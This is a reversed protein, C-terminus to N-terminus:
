LSGWPIADSFATDLLAASMPVAPDFISLGYYRAASQGVGQTYGSFIVPNQPNEANFRFIERDARRRWSYIRDIPDMGSDLRFYGDFRDRGPLFPIVRQRQTSSLPLTPWEKDDPGLSFRDTRLDAPLMALTAEDDRSGRTWGNYGYVFVSDAPSEPLRIAQNTARRRPSNSELLAELRRIEAIGRQGPLHRFDRLLRALDAQEELEMRRESQGSKLVTREETTLHSLATAVESLSNMLGQWRSLDILSITASSREISFRQSGELQYSYSNLYDNALTVGLDRLENLSLPRDGGGAEALADLNEFATGSAFEAEESALIFHSLRRLEEVVEVSAMFCANFWLFDLPTNELGPARPPLTEALAGRLKPLSFNKLGRFGLGHGWILLLRNAEPNPFARAFFDRVESNRALWPGNQLWPLNGGERIKVELRGPVRVGAVPPSVFLPDWSSDGNSAPEVPFYSVDREAFSRLISIRFEPSPRLKALELINRDIEAQYSADEEAGLFIVAVDWAAQAREGNVAGGLLVLATLLLSIKDIRVFRRIMRM